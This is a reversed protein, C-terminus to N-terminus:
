GPIFNWRTSPALSLFKPDTATQPHDDVLRCGTEQEAVHPFVVLRIPPRFAPPEFPVRVRTGRLEDLNAFHHAVDLHRPVHRRLWRFRRHERPHSVVLQQFVPNRGFPQFIDFLHAVLIRDQVHGIVKRRLGRLSQHCKGGAGLRFRRGAYAGVRVREGMGVRLAAEPHHGVLLIQLSGEFVWPLFPRDEQM